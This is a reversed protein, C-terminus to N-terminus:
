FTRFRKEKSINGCLYESLGKKEGVNDYRNQITSNRIDCDIFLIRKELGAMSKALRFAISSKGENAVSSTVAITKINSGSLQINGRLVNIAENVRFSVDSVHPHIVETQRGTYGSEKVGAPLNIILTKKRIGATSRSLMARKTITMSYARMAEPIGPVRRDIIDETAEPTIDRPSFGTGGTTLILEATGSDAIEAMRESLMKRDDPLVDESVVEYGNKEVIERIAPGSLDEREGRYGTDSSTIIAVRKM